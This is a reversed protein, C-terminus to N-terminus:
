GYLWWGSVCSIVLGTPSAGVRAGWCHVLSFMLCCMFCNLESIAYSVSASSVLRSNSLGLLCEM